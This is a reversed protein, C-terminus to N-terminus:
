AGHEIREVLKQYDNAGTSRPAFECLPQGFGPAESIRVNYRIPECLEDPYHARL